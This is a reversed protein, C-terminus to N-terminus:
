RSYASDIARFTTMPGCGSTHFACCAPHTIETASTQTPSDRGRCRRNRDFPDSERNQGIQRSFPVAWRHRLPLRAPATRLHALRLLMTELLRPEDPDLRRTS